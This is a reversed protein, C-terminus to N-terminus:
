EVLWKEKSKPTQVVSTFLVIDFVELLPQFELSFASEQKPLVAAISSKLMLSEPQWLTVYTALM